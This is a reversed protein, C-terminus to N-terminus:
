RKLLYIIRWYMFYLISVKYKLAANAMKYNGIYTALVSKVKTLKTIYYSYSEGIKHAGCVNSQHQRYLIQPCKIYSINADNDIAKLGIWSDHLKAEDSLPLSLDRLVRNFLMTCGTFMNCSVAFRKQLLFKPELKMYRWFSNDIVQLKEDVVVLDTFVLAPRGKKEIKQIEDFSSSIKTPLWVDDHDCFMYYDADVQELLWMFSGLARRGKVTDTLLHINDYQACYDAIISLTQDSSGDDRIYLSFNKYTQALLSNIQEHIFQESNYTALLVAIKTM